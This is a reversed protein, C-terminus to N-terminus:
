EEYEYIEGPFHISVSKIDTIAVEGEELCLLISGYQRIYNQMAEVVPKWALEKRRIKDKRVEAMMEDNDQYIFM